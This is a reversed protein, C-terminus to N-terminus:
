APITMQDDTIGLKKKQVCTSCMVDGTRERWLVHNTGGQEREQEWGTIAFAAGRVTVIENGCTACDM